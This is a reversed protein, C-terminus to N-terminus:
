KCSISSWQGSSFSRTTQLVLWVTIWILFTASVNSHSFHTGCNGLLQCCSKVAWCGMNRWCISVQCKSQPSSPLWCLPVELRTPEGVLVSLIPMQIMLREIGSKWTWWALTYPMPFRPSGPISQWIWGVRRYTNSSQYQVGCLQTKCVQFHNIPKQCNRGCHILVDVLGSSEFKGM